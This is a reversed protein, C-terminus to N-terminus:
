PVCECVGRWLSTCREDRLKLSSTSLRVCDEGPAANDPQGTDWPLFTAPAGLVTVYTGENAEDHIGVWTGAGALTNIAALEPQDDPIALYTAEAACADRQASWATTATIARYRHPLGALAVYSAPCRNSADVADIGADSAPEAVCQNAYSGSYEGFRAGSACSPDAFSCYSVAECTGGPTCDADSACVFSTSRLCAAAPAILAIAAVVSALRPM